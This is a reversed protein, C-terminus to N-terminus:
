GVLSEKNSHIIAFWTFRAALVFRQPQLAHNRRYTKVVQQIDSEPFVMGMEVCHNNHRGVRVFGCLMHCPLVARNAHLRIQKELVSATEILAGCDIRAEVVKLVVTPPQMEIGVDNQRVVKPAHQEVVRMQLLVTDVTRVPHVYHTM